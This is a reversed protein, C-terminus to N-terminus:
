RYILLSQGDKNQKDNHTQCWKRIVEHYLKHEVQLVRKALTQATDGQLIPVVGQGLLPGDDLKETVQHVTCGHVLVGADLASQHTHLGPFLPLLSPHINLLKEAWKQVFFPSLIRMFGALCVREVGHERLALDIKAEFTERTKFDHHDIIQVPINHTNAYEIGRAKPNNSILVAIEAPFDPATCAKAIAIFNSGGGSILIGLRTKM